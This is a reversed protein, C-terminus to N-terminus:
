GLCINRLMFISRPSSQKTAESRKVERLSSPREAGTKALFSAIASYRLSGTKRRQSRLSAIWVGM